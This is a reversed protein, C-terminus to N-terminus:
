AREEKGNEEEIIRKMEDMIEKGDRDMLIRHAPERRFWTIQRKAYNRSAQKLKAVCEDLGAKGELYPFLEKYGIAAAATLYRDRNAYVKEAEELLGGAMMFDVRADIRGYLTKRDPYVLLFPIVDLPSTNKRSEETQRAVTKGTTRLLTVSRVLRKPNGREIADAHEPDAQELERILKEPGWLELEREVEAKVAEDPASEDTFTIGKALSSYYLGTGGCIVPVRNRGGIDRIAAGAEAVYDSVSFREEPDRIDILYHPIRAREEATPKATGVDLGRYIQMSDCSVIEGGYLAALELAAGSKGSATPGIVAIPKM